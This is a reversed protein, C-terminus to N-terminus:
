AAVCQRLDFAPDAAFRPDVNKGVSLLKRAVMHDGPRNVSEVAVLKGEQYLFTSFARDAVSGRVIIEDHHAGLGAIQLKDQGQDSWFWPVAEFRESSGMIRAAVFKAHDNSNSVSEVRVRTGYRLSAFAACDGIASIRSDCTNLCEDVVVGNDIDLGAKEALEVNPSIGIGVVIFDAPIIGGDDLIVGRLRGDAVDIAAVARGFHIRCGSADHQSEFFESIAPSVARSMFRSGLEVVDVDLGMAAATAAFELGIFGAGVVV